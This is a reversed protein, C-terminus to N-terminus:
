VVLDAMCQSELSGRAIRRSVTELVEEVRDLRKKIDKGLNQPHWWIHFVDGMRLSDMERKIRNLHLGWGLKPLNTRLFMSARVMSLPSTLQFQGSHRVLPNLSELLRLPRHVSFMTSDQARNHIWSSEPGRWIQISSETISPLFAHQNRPFVLSKPLVGFQNEWLLSVANLDELLDQETVGPAQMYIHSFTHTGLEQGPTNAVDHLLDPAFHLRGEPDLDAYSSVVALHDSHYKPPIPARTFYEDWGSCGLAGVSAWTARINYDLFLRLLAPVVERVNELNERYLELNNGLRDHLGWRLEFDLSIVFSPLNTNQLDALESSGKDM